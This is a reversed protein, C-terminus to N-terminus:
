GDYVSDVDWFPVIRGLDSFGDKEGGGSICIFSSYSIPSSSLSALFFPFFSLVLPVFLSCSVFCLAEYARPLCYLVPYIKRCM